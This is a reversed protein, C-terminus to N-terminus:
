LIVPNGMALYSANRGHTKKIGSVVLLLATMSGILSLLETMFEM